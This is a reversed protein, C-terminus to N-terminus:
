ESHIVLREVGATSMDTMAPRTGYFPGGFGQAEQQACKLKCQMLGQLLGFNKKQQLNSGHSDKVVTQQKRLERCLTDLNKIESEYRESLTAYSDDLREEKRLRRAESNARHMQSDALVLQANLEHYSREAEMTEAELRQVDGFVKKLDTEVTLMAQDYAAKKEAHRVEVVQFSQRSSRLAKIQPALKNKMEKLQSNIKTVINSIEDLTKGKAKDVQAKEVSTKALRQEAEQLGAPTPDRAQLTQVTRSLIANEGRLENLESKLKKFKVATERLSAAYSKFEDRTMFKHGKNQEYEREKQSLEQRLLNRDEELEKSEKLVVDKKRAVLSAQQKYVMLRQDQNHEEIVAELKQVEEQMMGVEQEVSRLDGETVPPEGLAREIEVMRISKENTEQIIRSMANRMKNTENRLIKLMAEASNQSSSDQAERLERLRGMQDLYVQEVHELQFRQEDLKEAIRAEEEQEKRLMSTVQLLAQFGEDKETRNKMQKIKQALQEKESELQAVEQQISSPNIHEQRKQEVHMHTAKFQSQLEKYQQYMDFTHEDRLFEEPVELPVLFKALYARKQLAEFNQLLWYLIPHVVDKDGVLLGQQAELDFPTKYGLVILFEMIQQCADEPKEDRLNIEKKPDVATIVTNLIEMLEFPEKEDFTVLQLGMNFPDVNLRTVIEKLQAAM